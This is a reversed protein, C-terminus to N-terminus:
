VSSFNFTKLYRKLLIYLENTEMSKTKNNVWDNIVKESPPEYCFEQIPNSNILIQNEEITIYKQKSEPYEQVRVIDKYVGCWNYVFEFRNFPEIVFGNQAMGGPSVTKPLDLTDTDQILFFKLKKAYKIARKTNDIIKKLMDEKNTKYEKEKKELFKKQENIYHNCFEEPNSLKSKHQLKRKLQTVIYGTTIVGYKDKKLNGVAKLM